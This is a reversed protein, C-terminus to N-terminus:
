IAYFNVLNTFVSNFIINCWMSLSTPSAMAHKHQFEKSHDSNSGWYNYSIAVTIAIILFSVFQDYRPTFSFGLQTSKLSIYDRIATKVASLDYIFEAIPQLLHLVKTCKIVDNM